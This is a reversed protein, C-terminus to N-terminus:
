WNGFLGPWGYSFGHGGLLDLLHDIRVVDDHGALVREDAQRLVAALAEDRAGAVPADEPRGGSLPVDQKQFPFTNLNKRIVDAHGAIQLLLDLLQQIFGEGIRLKWDDVGPELAGPMGQRRDLLANNGPFCLDDHRPPVED